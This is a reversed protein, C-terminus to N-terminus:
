NVNQAAWLCAMIRIPAPAMASAADHNIRPSKYSSGQGNLPEREIKIAVTLTEFRYLRGSREVVNEALRGGGSPGTPQWTSRHREHRNRERSFRRCGRSKQASGRSRACGESSSTEQAKEGKKAHDLREEQCGISHPKPTM